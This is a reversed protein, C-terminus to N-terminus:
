LLFRLSCPPCAQLCLSFPVLSYSFLFQNSAQCTERSDPITFPSSIIGSFMEKDQYIPQSEKNLLLFKHHFNCFSQVLSVHQNNSAHRRRYVAVHRLAVAARDLDCCFFTSTKLFMLGLNANLLLVIISTLIPVISCAQISQPNTPAVLQLM